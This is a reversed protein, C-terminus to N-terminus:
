SLFKSLILCQLSSYPLPISAVISSWNLLDKEFQMREICVEFLTADREKYIEQLMLSRELSSAQKKALRKALM